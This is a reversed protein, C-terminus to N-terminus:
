QRTTATSRRRRAGPTIRDGSDVVAGGDIRAGRGVLAISESRVREGTRPKMASGVRADAGVTVRTDVISWDIQANERIVTDSMIISDRVHAGAGVRVGLGLVSREVTGEIHCGAAIMSDNVVGAGTVRAGPRQETATLIPWDPDDFIDVEGDLLERHAALYAAPRGLDRWYGPLHYAYTKGRAVLAPLLDEGFDGLHEGEPLADFLGQLVELLVHADYLFVETAVTDTSVEDPKHEIRTVQQGHDSASTRGGQSTHVLTHNGAEEAAFVSTVVTCEAATALHAKVVERFDLTYAHDASLVFVLDPAFEEIIGRFRFLCDSNGAAMGDEDTGLGEQPQLVRLGGRSRDLDWPRGHALVPDVSSSHYQLVVWVDDIRSNRANSMVIDLLSFVGGFPLTPKAREETLVEMRSGKGGALVIALVRPESM